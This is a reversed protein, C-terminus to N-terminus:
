RTERNCSHDRFLLSPIIFSIRIHVSGRKGNGVENGLQVGEPGVDGLERERYRSHKVNTGGRYHNAGIKDVIEAQM